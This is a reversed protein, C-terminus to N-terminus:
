RREQARMAAAWRQMGDALTAALKDQFSADRLLMEEPPWM